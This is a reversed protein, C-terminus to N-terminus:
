LYYSELILELRLKAEQTSDQNFRIKSITLKKIDILRRNNLIKEIIRRISSFNSELELYFNFSNLNEKKNILDLSSISLNKVISAEESAVKDLFDVIKKTEPKSPLSLELINLHERANILQNQIDIINIISKEYEKDIKSLRNLRERLSFAMLMSPKIVFFIFFSSILFFLTFYTYDKLQNNGQIKKIIKHPNFSYKLM